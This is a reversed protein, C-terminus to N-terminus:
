STRAETATLSTTEMPRHYTSRMMILVPIFLFMQFLPLLISGIQLSQYINRILVMFQALIDIVMLPLNNAQPKTLFLSIPPSLILYLFPAAEVATEGPPMTEVAVTPAVRVGVEM